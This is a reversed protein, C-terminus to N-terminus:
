DKLVKAHKVGDSLKIDVIDDENLDNVSKIIKDDKYVVSFGKEMISLPNLVKLKETYLSLEQVKNKLVNKFKLEILKMYENSESLAKDLLAKPNNAELRQTNLDLIHLKENFIQNMRLNIYREYDMLKQHMKDLKMVPSLSELRQDLYLMAKKCNDFISNLSNNMRKEYTSVTEKLVLLNPTALEAAATPTAARKDAVFDAITFDTEHGVASIIPLKSNFIAM